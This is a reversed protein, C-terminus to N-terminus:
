IVPGNGLTQSRRDRVGLPAETLVPSTVYGKSSDTHGTQATSLARRHASVLATIFPSLQSNPDTRTVSM